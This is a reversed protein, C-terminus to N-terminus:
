KTASRQCSRVQALESISLKGADPQKTQATVVAATSRPPPTRGLHAVMLPRSLAEVFRTLVLHPVSSM